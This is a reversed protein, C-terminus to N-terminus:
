SNTGFVPDMEGKGAILTPFGKIGVGQVMAPSFFVEEVGHKRGFPRLDGFGM